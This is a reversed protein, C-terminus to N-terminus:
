SSLVATICSSMRKPLEGKERKSHQKFILSFPTLSSQIGHKIHDHSHQKKWSVISLNSSTFSWYLVQVITFTSYVPTVISEALV